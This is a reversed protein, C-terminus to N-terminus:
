SFLKLQKVKENTNKYSKVIDEMKYLLGYKQCEEKFIIAINKNPSNCIYHNGFTKIYKDKLGNFHKDLQNYFYTRQNERLTVGGMSWVFKAGNEYSLRIIQKVNEETDTIFPIIPTLLTGVFLGADALQKMAKLRESSRCVNPEIIKSLDDDSATITLKLIVNQLRNIEKFIDIDRVILDSKTELSVGFGYRNILKLANRTIEYQKEFPNYTDSMAGIGIVGKKRKTQLEKELIQLEDKKARVTDFNEVQYCDSRSDCYICGHSCGKYLNMNYDAGFWNDGHTFKQLITKAPIFEM